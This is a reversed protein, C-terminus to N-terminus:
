RIAKLIRNVDPISLGLAIAIQSRSKGGHWPGPGYMDRVTSYLVEHDDSENGFGSWFLASKRNM